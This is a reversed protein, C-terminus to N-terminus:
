RDLEYKRIVRDLELSLETLDLNGNLYNRVAEFEEPKPNANM